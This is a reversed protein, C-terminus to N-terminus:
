LSDARTLRKIFVQGDEIALALAELSRHLCPGWVCYGDHIRFLAGHLACQIHQGDLSLFEDAGWNLPAGTHPCANFYGHVRQNRRVLFIETGAEDGLPILRSGGDPIDHLHCLPFSTNQTAM